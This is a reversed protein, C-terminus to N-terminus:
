EHVNGRIEPKIFPGNEWLVRYLYSGPEFYRVRWGASAMRELATTLDGYNEYVEYVYEMNGIM